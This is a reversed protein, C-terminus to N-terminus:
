SRGRLSAELDALQRGSLGAGRVDRTARDSQMLLRDAQRRLTEGSLVNPRWFAGAPDVHAFRIARRIEDVTRGDLRIALDIPRAWGDLRGPPRFTPTHAQIAALLEGALLIADTSPALRPRPPRPTDPRLGSSVGRRPSDESNKETEPVEPVLFGSRNPTPNRDPNRDPNNDIEDLASALDKGSLLLPARVPPLPNENAPSQDRTSHRSTPASPEAPRAPRGGLRGNARAAIARENMAGFDHWVHGGAVADIWGTEVLALWLAGPEGPWGAVVEVDEVTLGDMEGHRRGLGDLHAWVRQCCELGSMPGRRRADGWTVGSRALRAELLWRKRHGFASDVTRAVAM